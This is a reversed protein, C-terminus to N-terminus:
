IFRHLIDYEKKTIEQIDKVCCAVEGGNFYYVGDNPNDEDANAYFDSVYAEADFDKKGKTQHLSSSYYEYEGNQIHIKLFWYKM